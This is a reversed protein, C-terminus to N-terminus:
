IVRAFRYFRVNSIFRNTIDRTFGYFRFKSTFRSATYRTFRYFRFTVLLGTLFTGLQISSYQALLKKVNLCSSRAKVRFRTRPMVLVYLWM